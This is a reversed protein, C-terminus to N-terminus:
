FRWEKIIFAGFSSIGPIPQQDLTPPRLRYRTEVAAEFRFGKPTRYQARIGPWKRNGLQLESQFALFLYPSVYKGAEVRTAQLFSGVAGLETPVDAPTIAFVDAGLGKGAEGEIEDAMVGLAVATLRQMALAAGVGVLSGTATAGSLGSGELQLLSTTSRGFALYSLLDSQSIPPEADSELSLKPKRATGGIVVRINFNPRGTQQVEYEGTAQLTPNLEPGGVFTASGRKIQFRRSLFTYEGRDTAIIGTLALADGERHVRLPGDSYIEINADRSRLWTNRSVTLDVDLRIHELLPSSAPFLETDSLVSSDAVQFITPDGTNVVTKQNSEPLYFVGERVGVLGAIYVNRWPGTASLGVDADLKGWKNDLVETNNGTLHLDLEPERWNQLFMRGALRVPGKGSRGAISDVFVTDRVMRVNAVIHDVVMGTPVVMLSGGVWTAGGAFTAHQWTGRMAFKGVARGRIQTVADTLTSILDLPLSDGTVDVRLPRELLRSRGAPVGTLALNIPLSADAVLLQTGTGRLAEAKVELTTNAYAFTGRFNPVVSGRYKGNVVGAAGHFRPSRLTGEVQARATLVGSLEVDSQLFSSIDSVQFNQVDIVGNVNGSKPLVGSAYIRSGTNSNLEVDRAEIGSPNWKIVADRALKWVVTDSRLTLATLRVERKSDFVFTGRTSYDRETGQRVALQFEGRATPRRYAVRAELTDFLFGKISIERGEAAVAITSNPTRANTWSYEARLSRASNGRAVLDDATLRGRLDFNKVNGHLTGSAFLTGSLVSRAISRPTDVPIKPMARGTAAREVETARAIRESDARAREVARRVLLPRPREVGVESGPIWGSFAGLSDVRLQYRLDGTRGAVLGFTGSADLRNRSAIIMLRDARAMGDGLAGRVVGSDIVLTDFQSRMFDGALAAHMTRPELGRGKAAVSANLVTQPARPSVAAFNVNRMRGAVDYEICSVFRDCTFALTGNAGLRGGGPLALDVEFRQHRTTGSVRVKGLANGRLALSPALLGVTALSLPSAEVDIGFTGSGSMSVNAKGTLHSRGRRDFHEIDGSFALSTRTTGDINVTGVITGDIPQIVDGFTPALAKVLAVQVPNVRAHVNRLRWVGARVSFGGNGSVRSTGTGPDHFALDGSLHFENRGGAVTMQGDLTGRRPSEFDPVLQEVLKTSVNSFRVDTDHISFTDAFTIAFKGRLRAGETRVDANKVVYHETTGRWELGFDLPGGGTSPFRPYVWRFDAFAAPRGRAAINMDGGDFIYRGDGRVYSGPMRVAADHWWASDNNFRVIGIADTVTAPPPRFPFAITQLSAVQALRNEYGPQSIRVLPARTTIDRLEIIKQFQFRQGPTPARVVLLRSEGRMAERISSDQAARSLSTDPHWPTRVYLHGGLVTVDHLLIWPRQGPTRKKTSSPFIRQYNWKGGPPRDLMVLPRVLRVSRLDVRGAILDMIRYRASVQEAVIFPQGTTDTIAFADITAGTLLNGRVRGITVKGHVYGQLKDLAFRRVRERGWDTASLGWIALAVVVALSVVLVALGRVLRLLM